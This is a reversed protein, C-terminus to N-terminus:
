NVMKLLKFHKTPEVSRLNNLHVKDMLEYRLRPGMSFKFYHIWGDERAVVLRRTKDSFVIVKASKVVTPTGTWTIPIVQGEPNFYYKLVETVASYSIEIGSLIRSLLTKSFRSSFSEVESLSPYRIGDFPVKLRQSNSLNFIEIDNSVSTCTLFPANTTFNLNLILPCQVGGMRIMAKIPDQSKIPEIILELQLM